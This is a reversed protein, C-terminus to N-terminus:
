DELLRIAINKIARVAGQLALGTLPVREHRINNGRWNSCPIRIMKMKPNRTDLGKNRRLQEDTIM